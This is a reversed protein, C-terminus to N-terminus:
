SELNLLETLLSARAYNTVEITQGTVGPVQSVASKIMQALAVAIPCLPSSPRFRYAVRGHPDVTLDEVLRMRWVDAGTEPDIVKQLQKIIAQELARTNENM